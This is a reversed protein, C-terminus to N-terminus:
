RTERLLSTQAARFACDIQDALAATGDLSGGVAELELESCLDSMHYAGLTLCVGKLRHALGSVAVTDQAKIASRLESLRKPTDSGFLEALEALLGTGAFDARLQAVRAADLPSGSASTGNRGATSPGEAGPRFGPQGPPADNVAARTSRSRRKLARGIAQTLEEGAGGKAVLCTAGASTVEVLTDRSDSASLAVILTNPCRTLIRRVADAGGGGPMNWDLVFVDPQEVGALEVAEEVGAAEGVLEIWPAGSLMARTAVRGVRDDDAFAVRVSREPGRGDTAAPPEPDSQEAREAVSQDLVVVDLYAAIAGATDALTRRLQREIDGPAAGRAAADALRDCLACVRGAGVEAAGDSLALAVRHLAQADGANMARWLEPLRVTAAAVFKAAAQAKRNHDSGATQVFVYPDLLPTDICLQRGAESAPAGDRALIGLRRCDARLRELELPKSLHHDMGSALSVSRSRSTVAIVPVHASPVRGRIKRAATYGDVEPMACDMFVAVYSWLDSLELAEQGGGAVDVTLGLSRLLGAAVRLSIQDDDVVLVRPEWESAAGQLSMQGELPGPPTVTLESPEGAAEEFQMGDVARAPEAIAILATPAPPPAPPAVARRKLPRSIGVLRSM